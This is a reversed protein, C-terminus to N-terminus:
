ALMWVLCGVTGLVLVAPVWLPVEVLAIARPAKREILEREDPGLQRYRRPPLTASDVMCVAPDFPDAIVRVLSRDLLPWPDYDFGESVAERSQGNRDQWGAVVVIPGGAHLSEPSPRRRYGEGTPETRVAAATFQRGYSALQRIRAELRAAHNWIRTGYWALGFAFVLMSLHPARPPGKTGLMYSAVLVVLLSAAFAFWACRRQLRCNQWTPVAVPKRM